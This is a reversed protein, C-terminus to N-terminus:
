NAYLKKIKKLYKRSVNKSSHYKLIWKRNSFSNNRIQSLFECIKIINNETNVNYIMPLYSYKEKSYLKKNLYTILPKNLTLAELESMGLFGLQFQGVIIKSQNIFKPIKQYPIQEKQIIFFKENKQLYNLAKKYDGFGLVLIKIKPNQKKIKKLAKLAKLTGKTKDQKSILFYDYKQKVQKTKFKNTDVINPLFFSNSFNKEIITKLDPTSYCILNAARASFLTLFNYFNKNALHERADTGHFELVIPCKAFYGLFGYLGYNIHLINPKEKILWFIFKFFDLIRLFAQKIRKFKTLKYGGINFQFFCTQIKEKELAEILGVATNSVNNVFGIKM